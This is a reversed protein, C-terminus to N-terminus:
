KLWARGADPPLLRSSRAAMPAGAGAADPAACIGAAPVGATGPALAGAEAGAAGAEPAACIGVFHDPAFRHANM